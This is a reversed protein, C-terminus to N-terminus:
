RGQILTFLTESARTQLELRQLQIVQVQVAHELRQYNIGQQQKAHAAKIELRRNEKHLEEQEKM